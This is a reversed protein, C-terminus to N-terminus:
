PTGVASEPAPTSLVGLLEAVDRLDAFPPSAPPQRHQAAVSGTASRWLLETVSSTAV